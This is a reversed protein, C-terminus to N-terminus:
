PMSNLYDLLSMVQVEKGTYVPHLQREIYSTFTSHPTGFFTHAHASIMADVMPILYSELRVKEEVVELRKIDNLEDMFDSLIFTCPFVNFLKRLLPHNRPDPADTAIYIVTNRFRNTVADGQQCKLRSAIHPNKNFLSQKEKETWLPHHVEIPKTYNTEDVPHFTRLKIEYEASETRDLDHQEIGGEYAAVQELSLDTFTNVLHHYVDDVLISARLKFIGDGVRVHMGVFNNAGGLQQVIRKTATSLVPNAFIMNSRINRLLQIHEETEALVRYSGFLSGFHLVRHEIKELSTLDIRYNFRDLPLDLSEDDHIQYEYPSMDKFFYIDDERIRGLEHRSQYLWEYDLGSRFILPAGTNEQIASMNYFFTWPVNTWRFNNLCESPLPLAADYIKVCHDLGNKTQFLLREYLKEYRLWPMAPSALFVPPVLLTRNLYTALLLANELEIRQNHFGSHPLYSLYKETKVNPRHLQFPDPFIVPIPNNGHQFTSGHHYFAMPSNHYQFHIIGCILFLSFLLFLITTNRRKM